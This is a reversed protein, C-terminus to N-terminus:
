RAVRVGDSVVSCLGEVHSHSAGRLAEGETGLDFIRVAAVNSNTSNLRLFTRIGHDRIRADFHHRLPKPLAGGNALNRTHLLRMAKNASGKM